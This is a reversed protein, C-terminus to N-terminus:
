RKGFLLSKNSYSALQKGIFNKARVLLKGQGHEKWPLLCIARKSPYSGKDGWQVRMNECVYLFRSNSLGNTIGRVSRMM